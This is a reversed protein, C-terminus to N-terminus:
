NKEEEITSYNEAVPGLDEALNPYTGMWIEEGQESVSNKM